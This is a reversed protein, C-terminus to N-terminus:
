SSLWQIYVIRFIAKEKLAATPRMEGLFKSVVEDQPYVDTIALGVSKYNVCTRLSAELSSILVVCVNRVIILVDSIKFCAAIGVLAGWNCLCDWGESM